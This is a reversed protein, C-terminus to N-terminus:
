VHNVGEQDHGRGPHRFCATEHDNVVGVAQLYSYLTVSGMYKMGRKKMDRAMRDSLETTARPEDTLNIM